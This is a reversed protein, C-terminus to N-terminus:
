LGIRFGRQFRLVRCDPPEEADLAVIALLDPEVGSEGVVDDGLDAIIALHEFAIEALGALQFDGTADVRQPIGAAQHVCRRRASM